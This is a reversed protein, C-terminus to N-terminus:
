RGFFPLSSFPRVMFVAAVEAGMEENAKFQLDTDRYSVCASSNLVCFAVLLSKGASTPDGNAAKLNNAASFGIEL